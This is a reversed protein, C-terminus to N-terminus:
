RDAAENNPAPVTDAAGTPTPNGDADCGFRALIWPGPVALDLGVAGGDPTLVRARDLLRELQKKNTRRAAQRMLAIGGKITQALETDSQGGAADIDLSMAVDRDINMRVQASQALRRMAAVVPQEGPNPKGLIRSLDDGLLQGQIDGNTGTFPAAPARSEARDIAHKLAEQSDALILLQDGVLGIHRRRKRNPDQPGSTGELQWLKANDGYATAGEPVKLEALRGSVAMVGSAMGTGIHDVDRQVDLGTNARVRDFADLARGGRCRILKRAIDSRTLTGINMMLHGQGPGAIARQLLRSSTAAAGLPPLNGPLVLSPSRHGAPKAAPVSGTLDPEDSQDDAHAVEDRPFRPEAHSDQSVGKGLWTAAAILMLLALGLSVQKGRKM